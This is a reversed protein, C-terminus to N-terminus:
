NTKFKLNRFKKSDANADYYPSDINETIYALLNGSLDLVVYTIGFASVVVSTWSNKSYGLKKNIVQWPNISEISENKFHVM